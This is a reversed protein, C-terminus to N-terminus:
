VILLACGKRFGIFKHVRDQSTGMRLRAAKDWPVLPYMSLECAGFNAPESLLQFQALLVM